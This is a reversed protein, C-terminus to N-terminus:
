FNLDYIYYILNHFFFSYNYEKLLVLSRKKLYILFLFFHYNPHRYYFISMINYYFHLSASNPKFYCYFYTANLYLNKYSNNDSM